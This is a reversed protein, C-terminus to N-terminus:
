RRAHRPQALLARLLHRPRPRRGAPELVRVPRRGPARAGPPRGDRVGRLLRPRPPHPRHPAHTTEKTATSSWPIADDLAVITSAPPGSRRTVLPPRTMKVAVSRDAGTVFSSM